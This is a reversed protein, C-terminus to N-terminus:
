AEAQYDEPDKYYVSARIHGSLEQHIHCMALGM